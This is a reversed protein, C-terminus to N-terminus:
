IILPRTRLVQLKNGLAAAHTPLFGRAVVSASQDLGVNRAPLADNALPETRLRLPSLCALHGRRRRASGYAPAPVGPIRGYRTVGARTPSLADVGGMRAVHDRPM